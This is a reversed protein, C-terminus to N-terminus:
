RCGIAFRLAADNGAVSCSSSTVLGLGPLCHLCQWRICCLRRSRLHRGTFQRLFGSNEATSVWQATETVPVWRRKLQQLLCGTVSDSKGLIVACSHILQQHCAGRMQCSLADAYDRGGQQWPETNKPIGAWGAV